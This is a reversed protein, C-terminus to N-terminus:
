EEAESKKEKLRWGVKGVRHHVIKWCIDACSDVVAPGTDTVPIDVLHHHANAPVWVIFIGLLGHDTCPFCCESCVAQHKLGFLRTCTAYRNM